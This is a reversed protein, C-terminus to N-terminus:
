PELGMRRVLRAFRADGRLPDLLPSSGVGIVDPDHTAVARELWALAQEKDGLGTYALAIAFPPVYGRAARSTLDRVLQTARARDGSAAYAHVLLPKNLTHTSWGLDAARELEAIAEAHWGKRLYVEGLRQHAFAFDPDLDLVQKLRAIAEDYRHLQYLDLGLETAIVRSLPDLSHALQRELLAEDLRGTVSLYDAYWHHAVAYGPALRIAQRFSLEAGRWDWAYMKIDALATHAEALTSDLSLAREASRRAKAHTEKPPANGYFPLLV